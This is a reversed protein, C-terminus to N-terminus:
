GDYILFGCLRNNKMRNHLNEKNDLLRIVEIRRVKQLPREDRM